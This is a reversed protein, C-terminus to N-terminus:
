EWSATWASEGILCSVSPNLHGSTCKIRSGIISFSSALIDSSRQSGLYELTSSHCHMTSPERQTTSLAALLRKVVFSGTSSPGKVIVQLPPLGKTHHSHSSWRSPKFERQRNAKESNESM